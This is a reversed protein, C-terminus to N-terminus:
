TQEGAFFGDRLSVLGTAYKEFDARWSELDVGANFANLLESSGEQYSFNFLSEQEALYTKVFDFTNDADPTIGEFYQSFRRRFMELVTPDLSCGDEWGVYRESEIIYTGVAGWSDDDNFYPTQNRKAGAILADRMASYVLDDLEM